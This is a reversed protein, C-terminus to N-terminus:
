TTHRKVGSMDGYKLIISELDLLSKAIFSQDSEFEFKLQNELHHSEIYIGSINIQGIDNYTLTLNLNGEYSSYDLKGSLSKNAEKLSEYFNYLEGTSTCFISKVHYGDIKLEISAQTDYGGWHCTKEPFGFVENLTIKIFADAGKLTFEEM